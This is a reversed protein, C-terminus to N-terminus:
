YYYYYYYYYSYKIYRFESILAFPDLSYLAGLARKKELRLLGRQDVVVVELSARLRLCRRAM